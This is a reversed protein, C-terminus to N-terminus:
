RIASTPCAIGSEETSMETKDCLTNIKWVLEEQKHKRTQSIRKGTLKFKFREWKNINSMDLKNVSQFLAKVQKCFGDNLLLSNNFKWINESLHSQQIIKLSLTVMCHDTLPSVSIECKLVDKCITSHKHPGLNFYGNFWAM